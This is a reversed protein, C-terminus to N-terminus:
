VAPGAILAVTATHSGDTDVWTVRLREGPKHNHIAPGLADVSSIAKGDVQTIASGQTIGAVAAPTGALVGVILVGGNAGLGLRTASAQDLDQVEVGLFGPQGLIIKSSAHGARIQNVIGLANNVPIAYGENSVRRIQSTRASATIMGVVQGASNVLPGGSEGPSIPADAEILGSLREPEARAGGATISRGLGVVHGESVTPEGGRGFANGIAVVRQGVTLKSSDGVTITPLGTAGEVQLLAVDDSPDAGVVRADFTGSRGQITVTVSTGGSIVHNNTLVLGTSSLLMGTGAGETRRSSGSGGSGGFFGPDFVSNVDVVAPTVKDKIAELDLNGTPSGPSPTLPAVATQPGLAGSRTLSWGIGIGGSVLLLAAVVAAVVVRAKRRPPGGGPPLTPWASAQWPAAPPEPVAPDAPTPESFAPDAPTPESFAPDAPTPEPVTPQPVVPEPVSPQPETPQDNTDPGM